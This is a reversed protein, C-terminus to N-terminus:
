ATQTTSRFIFFLFTSLFATLIFLVFVNGNNPPFNKHPVIFFGKKKKKSKLEYLKELKQKQLKQLKKREAYDMNYSLSNVEFLTLFEEILEEQKIRKRKSMPEKDFGIRVIHEPYYDEMNEHQSTSVTQYSSRNEVMDVTDITNYTYGEDHFTVEVLSTDSIKIITQVYSHYGLGVNSEDADISFNNIQGSHSKHAIKQTQSVVQITAFLTLLIFILQKPNM